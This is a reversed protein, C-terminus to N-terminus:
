RAFEMTTPKFEETKLTREYRHVIYRSPEIELMVCESIPKNRACVEGPNLFLKGNKADAEFNHTHGFIIVQVDPALYFPHHMLKFMVNEIKFYYPESNINYERAYQMLQIDNNGFVVYYPLNYSKLYHLIELSVIDGAHIIYQAGNSVLFDLARKARKHKKHSDSIVGIKLMKKTSVNSVNM